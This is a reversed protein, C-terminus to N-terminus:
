VSAHAVSRANTQIPNWAHCFSSRSGTVSALEATKKKTIENKEIRTLERRVDHDCFRIARGSGGDGSGIAAVV